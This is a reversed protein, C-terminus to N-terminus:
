ELMIAGAPNAPESMTDQRFSRLFIDPKENVCNSLNQLSPDKQWIRRGREASYSSDSPGRRSRCAWWPRTAPRIPFLKQHGTQSRTVRNEDARKHITTCM